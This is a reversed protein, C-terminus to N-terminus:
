CGLEDIVEQIMAELTATASGTVYDPIDSYGDCRLYADSLNTCAQADLGKVINDYAKELTWQMKRLDWASVGVLSGDDVSAYFYTLTDAMMQEADDDPPPPPVDDDDTISVTAYSPSGIDYATNSSITLRVSELSEVTEDDIVVISVTASSQGYPIDV